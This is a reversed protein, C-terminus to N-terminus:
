RYIGAKNMARQFKEANRNHDILNTAFNHRGSFDEKACMYLYKHKEYNLVADLSNINPMNIPGPPLGANLYTNYPSDIKKHKNLVRRIQFDGSAFVLTPDAMLPIGRKIRNLYLGAVIKLEDNQITEAQVISALVSIEKPSLGITEAKALREANWFKDYEKKLRALLDAPKTNWWMKYTNPIFMGIFSLSDFGYARRVSDTLILDAFQQETMELNRTIKEPLDKLLRANNFTVNVETQDGARLKRIVQVNTMGPQILYLGPKVLQDYDMMKALFSFSVLDNLYRGDYLQEQVDKFTHGTRIMLPKPDQEVLFNPSYIMQWFYFGFSSLMMSFAVIASGIVIKKKDM